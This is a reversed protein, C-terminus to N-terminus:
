RSPGADPPTCCCVVRRTLDPQLQLSSPPSSRLMSQAVKHRGRAKVAAQVEPDSNDKKQLEWVAGPLPTVPSRDSFVQAGVLAAGHAQGRASDRRAKKLDRVVNGQEDVAAKAAAIVEPSPPAKPAAAAPAPAAEAEQPPPALQFSGARSRPHLTNAADAAAPNPFLSAALLVSSCVSVSRVPKKMLVGGPGFCWKEGAKGARPGAAPARLARCLVDRLRCTCPLFPCARPAGPRVRALRRRGAM